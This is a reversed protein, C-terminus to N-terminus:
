GGTPGGPQRAQVVAPRYHAKARAGLARAYAWDVGFGIPAGMLPLFPALATVPGQRAAIRLGRALLPDFRRLTAAALSRELARWALARSAQVGMHKVVEKAADGAMILLVDTEFDSTEPTHGYVHAIELIMRIQLALASVVNAPMTAGLSSVGSLGTMAGVAGCRLAYRQVIQEAREDASLPPQAHAALPLLNTRPAERRVLRRVLREWATARARAEIPGGWQWAM